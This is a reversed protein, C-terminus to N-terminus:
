KGGKKIKVQSVKLGHEKAYNRKLDNVAKRKNRSEVTLELFAIVNAFSQATELDNETEHGCGYIALWEIAGLLDTTNPAKPKVLGKIMANEVTDEDASVRTTGYDYTEYNM